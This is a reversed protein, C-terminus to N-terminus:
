NANAKFERSCYSEVLFDAPQLTSESNLKQVVTGSTSPPYLDPLLKFCFKCCNSYFLSFYRTLPWTKLEECSIPATRNTLFEGANAETKPKKKVSNPPRCSVIISSTLHRSSCMEAFKLDQVSLNNYMISYNM